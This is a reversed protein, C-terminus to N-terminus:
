GGERKIKLAARISLFDCRENYHDGNHGRVWRSTVSHKTLEVDLQLWLDKNKVPDGASTFWHNRKWVVLWENIGRQVYKSDTVIEVSCSEKLHRLAQIAGMLEMRNNTSSPEGGSIEKETSGYRLIACWGGAGGPNGLCAGDTYIIVHKV